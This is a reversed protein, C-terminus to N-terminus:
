QTSFNPVIKNVIFYTCLANGYDMNNSDDDGGMPYGLPLIM